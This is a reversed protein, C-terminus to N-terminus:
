SAWLLTRRGALLALGGIGALLMVWTSPEPTPLASAFVGLNNGDLREVVGFSGSPRDILDASGGPGAQVLATSGGGDLNLGEYVGLDIMLAAEDSTTVGVSYGPQRGDIAILYLFRGDQSLGLGTRPDLGFPDHPAGTPTISSTDMGNTVIQNGSVANFVTTLDIPTAGAPSVAAANTKTILLSAAADDSGFSQPSVVTGNSVALGILDEPSPTAAVDSFFNANIAVEAGTSQLFQSTTQSTTELPGSPPTTTFGVGPATLDIREIYAISTNVVNSDANSLITATALDVGVFQPSFSSIGITTASASTASALGVIACMALTYRSIVKM